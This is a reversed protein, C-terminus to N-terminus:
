EGDAPPTVEDDVPQEDGSQGPFDLAPVSLSTEQQIRGVEEGVATDDWDPHVMRVRTEISAAQAAHLTTATQALELPTPQVSPPFEVTITEAPGPGRFVAADIELLARLLRQLEPAWYRTKKERTTMSKRERAAVETATQAAVEGDLGFTQMSYGAGSVIRQLLAQITAEHDAARIAFQQATFPAGEGGEDMINLGVFVERDLDFSAGQGRGATELATQDAIIRGKGIRVDRMWSTYVEDLADLAPEVGALDSRGYNSGIPDDRWVKLRTPKVNPIYVATLHTTGTDIGAQEDVTLGDTVASETLPIQRGLQTDSGEYLGHLIRGPEHRELHRVVRTGDREVIHWFTVARLVGFRFEPWAADPQVATVLPHDAVDDDWVIRLYVGSMAAALEGSEPLLSEWAIGQLITDLRERKPSGEVDDDSTLIRPQEAFLLDASGTAIDAAVPVHLKTRAQGDAPPQGWFWRAVSGVLGGSFQAPRVRAVPGDGRHLNGYASGLDDPDGSYWAAWTAIAPTIAALAKPPWQMDDEPLPM